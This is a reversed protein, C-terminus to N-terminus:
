NFLNQERHYFIYNVQGLDGHVGFESIRNTTGDSNVRAICYDISRLIKEVEQQAALRSKNEISYVPLVECIILPRNVSILEQLARLVLNESGEVDIKIIGPKIDADRIASKWTFSPVKLTKKSSSRFGHIISASSDTLSDNYLDLDILGDKDSLACPYITTDKFHNLDILTNLYLLCNPNPEFGIYQISPLIDKSKILTQGINVGVDIFFRNVCYVPIYKELIVDM